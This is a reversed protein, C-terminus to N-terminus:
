PALEALRLRRQSLDARNRGRGGRAGNLVDDFTAVRDAMGLGVAEAANVVRGEGFGGRVEAPKVGRGKAVAAVFMGYFHDVEHQIAARAEEGLPEYPNAEAKYKGATILTVAVGERELMGSVEEHVALVGISGVMGSPTVIIEDAASGIWYAASAMLGNAVATIPKKGRAALIESALEAVGEVSGGPSDVDFVIRGVSPNAIAERLQAKIRSIGTVGYWAELMANSRPVIYGQVPIVMTGGGGQTPRAAGGDEAAKLEAAMPGAELAAVLMTLAEPVIAWPRKMLGLYNRKM